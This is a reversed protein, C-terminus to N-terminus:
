GRERRYKYRRVFLRKIIYLTNYKKDTTEDSIYRKDM